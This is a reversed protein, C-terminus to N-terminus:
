APQGRRCVLDQRLALNLPHRVRNALAYENPFRYRYRYYPAEDAWYGQMKRDCLGCVLVGRLAYAHRSRHPKHESRIGKRATLMEQAKAFIQEDTKASSRIM